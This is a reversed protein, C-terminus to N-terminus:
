LGADLHAQFARVSSVALATLAAATVALALGTYLPTDLGPVAYWLVLAALALGILTLFVGAGRELSIVEEAGRVAAIRVSGATYVGHLLVLVIGALILTLWLRPEGLFQFAIFQLFGLLFIFTAAVIHNTATLSIVRFGFFYDRVFLYWFTVCIQLSLLGTVVVWASLPAQPDRLRAVVESGLSTLTIAQVVTALALYVDAQYGRKVEPLERM